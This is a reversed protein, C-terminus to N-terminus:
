QRQMRRKAIIKRCKKRKGLPLMGTCIEDILVPSIGLSVM